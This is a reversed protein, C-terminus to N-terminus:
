IKEIWEWIHEYVEQKNLENLMEHRGLPYIRTEVHELGSKKFEEAAQRVGVGYGGVPDDGGAVFYVPLDKKMNNINKDDQIYRLGILMDRLLGASAVFGCLPDAEYADVVENDRSLWDSNTRQHEIRKNNGSFMMGHLTTNPKKEDQLKCILKSMALGAGIVAGPMWATGSIIAGAIGSDPYKALITRAIFSGMSHGLLIFPVGPFEEMTDRLLQYSDDVAAFWGGHFYGKTSGGDISKGHGMHDQAVVLIGHDALFSAFHDYREVHEAIGHVIQVVYKVEGAPEWRLTRLKGAGCSPYFFERRMAKVEIWFKM